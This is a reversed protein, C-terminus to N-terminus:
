ATSDNDEEPPLWFSTVADIEGDKNYILTTRGERRAVQYTLDRAEKYDSPDALQLGPEVDIMEGLNVDWKDDRWKMVVIDWPPPIRGPKARICEDSPKFNDIIHLAYDEMGPVGQAFNVAKSLDWKAEDPLVITECSAGVTLRWWRGDSNDNWIWLVKEPETTPLERNLSAPYIAHLVGDTRQVYVIRGNLAAIGVALEITRRRDLIYVTDISGGDEFRQIRWRKEDHFVILAQRTKFEEPIELDFETPWGNQPGKCRGEEAWDLYDYWFKAIVDRNTKCRHAGCTLLHTYEWVDGILDYARRAYEAHTGYFKVYQNDTSALYEDFNVDLDPTWEFANYALGSLYRVVDDATPPRMSIPM